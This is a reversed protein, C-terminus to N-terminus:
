CKPVFVSKGSIADNLVADVFGDAIRNVATKQVNIGLVFKVENKKVTGLNKTELWGDEFSFVFASGPEHKKPLRRGLKKLSSNKKGKLTLLM